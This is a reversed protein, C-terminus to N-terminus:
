IHIYRNLIMMNKNLAVLYGFEILHWCSCIFGQTIDLDKVLLETRKMWISLQGLERSYVVLCFALEFLHHWSTLPCLFLCHGVKSIFFVNMLVFKLQKELM